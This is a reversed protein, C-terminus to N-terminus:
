CWSSPIYLDDSASEVQPQYARFVKTLANFETHAELATIMNETSGGKFFTIMTEILYTPLDTQPVTIPTQPNFM